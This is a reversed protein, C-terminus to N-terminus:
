RTDCSKPVNLVDGAFLKTKDPNATKLQRYTCGVKKAIKVWFDGSRVTYSNYKEAKTTTTKEAQTDETIVANNLIEETIGPGLCNAPIKITSGPELTTVEPNAAMIEAGGCGGGATAAVGNPYDGQRVTYSVTAVAVVPPVTTAAVPPLTRWATASPALTTEAGSSASACAGLLLTGLLAPAVIRLKPRSM